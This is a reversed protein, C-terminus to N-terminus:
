RLLEVRTGEDTLPHLKTCNSTLGEYPILDFM